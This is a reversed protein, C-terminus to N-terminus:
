TADTIDNGGNGGNGGNEEPDKECSVLMMSGVLAAFALLRFTNKM